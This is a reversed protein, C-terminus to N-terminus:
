PLLPPESAEGTSIPSFKRRPKKRESLRTGGAMEYETSDDGYLGKIGSRARKVKDWTNICARDREHRLSSLENQLWLIKDQLSIVTALDSEIAESTLTGIKLMPDIINWATLIDRAQELTDTPYLKKPM